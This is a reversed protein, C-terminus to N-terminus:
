AALGCHVATRARADRLNAAGALTAIRGLEDEVQLLRAPASTLRSNLLEVVKFELAHRLAAIAVDTGHALFALTIRRAESRALTEDDYAYSWDPHEETGIMTQVVYTREGRTVTIVANGAKHGIM